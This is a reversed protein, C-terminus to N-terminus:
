NRRRKGPRSSKKTTKVDRKRKKDKKKADYAAAKKDQEEWSEADDDEDDDEDDDDDGGDDGAAGEYYEDDSQDSCKYEDSEGEDAGDDDSEHTSDLISWGGNKWFAKPDARVTKLLPKWNLNTPGEYYKIDYGNLWEKIPEIYEVPISNIHSPTKKLDKFVFVLDFNRLNFQVREFHAIEVEELTLIFFPLDILQVLCNVTPQMFSTTRNPVGYFGLERFPVDFELGSVTEEVKKVFGQFEANLKKKMEREHQEDELDRDFMRNRKNRGDLSHAQEMVQTFFSFM